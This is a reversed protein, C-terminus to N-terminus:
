KRCSPKAFLFEINPQNVPRDCVTSTSVLLIIHININIKKQYVSQFHYSVWVQLTLRNYLSNPDVLVLYVTRGDDIM